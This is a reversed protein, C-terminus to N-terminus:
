AVTLSNATQNAMLSVILAVEIVTVSLALVITGLAPGIREAIVDAHRVSTLVAVVLVAASILYAIETRGLALYVIFLIAFSALSLLDATTFRARLSRIM